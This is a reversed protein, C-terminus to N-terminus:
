ILIGVEKLARIIIEIKATVTDIADVVYDCDDSIIDKINNRSLDFELDNNSNIGLTYLIM